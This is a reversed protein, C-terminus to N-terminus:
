LGATLHRLEISNLVCGYFKQMDEQSLKPEIYKRKGTQDRGTRLLNLRGFGVTAVMDGKIWMSEADFPSPLLREFTIECHYGMIVDPETLSFPVVTCLGARHKFNPSIVVVPRLKVMEPEVFGTNYDCVIITRPKPHYKLAM